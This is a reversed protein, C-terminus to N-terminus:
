APAGKQIWDLIDDQIQKGTVVTGDALKVTYAAETIVPGGLPMQGKNCFGLGNTLAMYLASNAASTPLNTLDLIPINVGKCHIAPVIGGKTPDVFVDRTMGTWFRGHTANSANKAGKDAIADLYEIVRSFTIPM